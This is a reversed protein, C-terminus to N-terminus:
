PAFSLFVVAGVVTVLLLGLAVWALGFTATAFGHRGTERCEQEFIRRLPTFYAILNMAILGLAHGFCFAPLVMALPWLSDTQLLQRITAGRIMGVIMLVSAATAFGVLFVLPLLAVRVKRGFASSPQM